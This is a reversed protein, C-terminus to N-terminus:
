KNKKRRRRERRKQGTTKERNKAAEKEMLQRAVSKGKIRGKIPTGDEARGKILGDEDVGLNGAIALPEMKEQRKGVERKLIEKDCLRFWIQDLTM